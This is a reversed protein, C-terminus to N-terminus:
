GTKCQPDHLARLEALVQEHAAETLPGSANGAWMVDPMVGPGIVTARYKTGDGDPHSGHRSFSYCFAGDPAHTLFSNERKWGAGYASGFTDLYINRGFTDGPSGSRSVKFGYVGVGDLTLTGFIEDHKGSIHDTTVSLVPLAGTWHSLHLERAASRGTAAVGYDPLARQWSQLAWYSGDPAKCAAVKWALAPGDYPACVNKFTKWYDVHYKRYGGSYDLSFAVQERSRTPAIANVAGSALVHKLRGQATYTILAEGKANVMLSVGSAASDLPQSAGAWPVIALAVIAGVALLGCRAVDLRM